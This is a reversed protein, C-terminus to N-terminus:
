GINGGKDALAEAIEIKGAKYQEVLENIEYGNAELVSKMGEYIEENGNYLATLAYLNCQAVNYQGMAMYADMEEMALNGEGKLLYAVVLTPVYSVDGPYAHAAAEKCIEIMKDADPTELYRFYSAYNIYSNMDQANNKRLKRYTSEVLEGDGARAAVSCIMPLYVWEYGKNKKSIETLLQLQEDLSEGERNMLEVAFFDIFMDGYIKNGDDDVAEKLANLQQMMEDYDYEAGSFAPSVVQAVAYYTNTHLETEEILRKYQWNWPLKLEAESYYKEIVKTAEALYGARRYDEILGRIANTSANKSDVKSLYEKGYDIASLRNGASREIYASFLSDDFASISTLATAFFVAIMIVTAFFGSFRLPHKLMFARCDDCYPYGAGHKESCPKEECCECIGTSLEEDYDYSEDEFDSLEQILEGEAEGDDNDEDEDARQSAKDLEQQFLDKLEDLERSLGDASLDSTENEAEDTVAATNEAEAENETLLDKEKEDM